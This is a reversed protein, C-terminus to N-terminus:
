GKHQSAWELAAKFDGKFDPRAPKATGAPNMTQAAAKSQLDAVVAAQAKAPLTPLIKTHLVHLYADKLDFRPNADFVKAIEAEHDKFGHWHQAERYMQAAQQDAHQRVAAAQREQQIERLPKTAEALRSEMDRQMRRDSWERWQRLRDASYVPAGNEAVLDPQPEPDERPTVTKLSGLIRAAQSAVQPRYQENTVLNNLLETAFAVPDAGAQRYWGLMGRISQPDMQLVEGFATETQRWRDEAAKMRANVETFREYPVPGPASAADTTLSGTAADPGPTAGSPQGQDSVTTPTAPSAGSPSSAGAIDGSASTTISDDM